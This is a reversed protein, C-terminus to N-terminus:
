PSTPVSQKKLKKNIKLLLFIIIVAFLISSRYGWSPGIWQNMYGMYLQMVANILGAIGIIASTMVPANKGFFGMAVAVLTPWFIAIFFGLAPLVYIGAAGLSFGTFYIVLCLLIAGL